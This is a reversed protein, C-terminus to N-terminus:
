WSQCSFGVADPKWSWAAICSEASTLPLRNGVAFLYGIVRDGRHMAPLTDRDM